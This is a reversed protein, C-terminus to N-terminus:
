DVQLGIERKLNLLYHYINDEDEVQLRARREPSPRGQQCNERFKMDENM